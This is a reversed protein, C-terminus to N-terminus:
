EMVLVNNKGFSYVKGNKAWEESVDTTDVATTDCVPCKMDHYADFAAKFEDANGKFGCMKCEPM